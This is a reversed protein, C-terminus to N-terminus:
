GACQSDKYFGRHTLLRQWFEPLYRKAHVLRFVRTHKVCCKKDCVKPVFPIAVSKPKRKRPKRKRVPPKFAKVIPARIPARKAQREPLPHVGAVFDPMFWVPVALKEIAAM